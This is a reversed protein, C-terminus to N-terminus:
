IMIINRVNCAFIKFQNDLSLQMSSVSYNYRFKEEKIDQENKDRPYSVGSAKCLAGSM